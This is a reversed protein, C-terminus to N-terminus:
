PMMENSINELIKLNEFNMWSKALEDFDVSSDIADACEWRGVEFEVPAHAFADRLGLHNSKSRNCRNLECGV